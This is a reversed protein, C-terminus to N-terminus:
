NPRWFGPQTGVTGHIGTLTELNGQTDFKLKVTLPKVDTGGNVDGNIHWVFWDNEIERPLPVKEEVVLQTPNQVLVWPHIQPGGDPNNVLTNEDQRMLSLFYKVAQAETEATQKKRYDMFFILGGILLGAFVVFGVIRM